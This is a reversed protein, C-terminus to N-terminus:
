AAPSVSCPWAGVVTARLSADSRASKRVSTSCPSSACFGASRSDAGRLAWRRGRTSFTASTAASSSRIGASVREPQAVARQELEGVGGPQARLLEDLEVDARDLEVGLAHADLALAALRAEDSRRAPAARSRM